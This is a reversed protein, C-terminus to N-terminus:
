SYPHGQRGPLPEVNGEVVKQVVNQDVVTAILPGQSSVNGEGCDSPSRMGRPRNWRRKALTMVRKRVWFILSWYALM